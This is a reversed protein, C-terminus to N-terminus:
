LPAGRAHLTHAGSMSRMYPTLEQCAACALHSSGSVSRMCPTLKQCAACTHHSSRVCQAHAAQAHTVRCRQQPATLCVESWPRSLSCRHGACNAPQTRACLPQGQSCSSRPWSLASTAAWVRPARGAAAAPGHCLAPAHAAGQPAHQGPGATAHRGEPRPVDHDARAAGGTPGAHVGDQVLLLVAAARVWRSPCVTRMVPSCEAHCACARVCVHWWSVSCGPWLARGWHILLVGEPSPSRM